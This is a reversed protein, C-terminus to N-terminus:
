AIEDLTKNLYRKVAVHSGAWGLGVGLALIFGCLMIFGINALLFNIPIFYYSIIQILIILLLIAIIGGSIGQIIGMNVFPALITKETAGVLQMTRIILRKSYISLRVINLVLLFTIIVLIATMLVSLQVLKATRSQVQEILHIPYDVEQVIPFRLVETTLRRISDPNVFDAEFRLNLSALFPNFGEMADKFDEGVAQFDNFADTKSRFTISRIAKHQALLTKLQAIDHDEVNDIIMIKYDLQEQAQELVVKGSLALLAFLGLFFLALSITLM